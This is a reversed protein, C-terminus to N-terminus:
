TTAVYLSLFSFSDIINLWNHGDFTTTTDGTFLNDILVSDWLQGRILQQATFPTTNVGTVNGWSILPEYMLASSDHWLWGQQSTVSNTPNWEALTGSGVIVNGSSGDQETLTTNVVSQWNGSNSGNHTNSNRFCARSTGDSDSQSNGACFVCQTIVGQLFTPLYPTGFCVFGRNPTPQPVFIFAQYKNAIIRFVTSGTGPNLFSGQTTSNSGSTVSAGDQISFTLCTGGNDAMNVIGAISWPTTASTMRVRGVMSQTGSQTGSTNIVSGGASASVTFTGTTLVTKVFYVTGATLGTPLAGTTSFVVQDNALLGHSALSVVGPSAISITVVQSGGGAPGSSQSWGANTLQTVLNSQLTAKNTPTFTTNVITGGAFQISM